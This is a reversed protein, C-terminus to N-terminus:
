SGGKLLLRGASAGLAAPLGLVVTQMCMFLVTAGEFRGFFWLLFASAGLAVAYAMVTGRVVGVAGGRAEGSVGGRFNSFYLILTTLVLSLAAIGLLRAPRTEAAIQVIEDTPAVNSAVLFAGCLGLALMGRLSAGDNSDDEPEDHRTEEAGLQATGVSVGVAVAMGEIIVKGMAESLSTDSGVQGVLWLLGLSLLLGIGLEEFSDIVVERWAASPHLGAHRNYLLLLGITAGLGALLREPSAIFGTWWMEMTYIVPLSFLLGGAIGRGYERLSEATTPARRRHEAM